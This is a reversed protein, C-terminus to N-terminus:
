ASIRTSIRKAVRGLLPAAIALLVTVRVLHHTAIYAVDGGLTLAVLTMETLGGPAYALLMQETTQGLLGHLVLAFGLATALMLLTAGLSLAFAKFVKIAPMGVFRCGVITGMIIQACIVLTAPPSSQTLGLMHAGASLLMPGLFAPAPFKARYAAFAGILGCLTLIAFDLPGAQGHSSVSVGSVEYGLVVRFWFAVLAIVLVIRAAHALIIARDDGGHQRGIEMMEVVGGPMAAFLATVPDMRGVRVYYLSVVMASVGICALLGLLSLSWQGFQTFTDATFGSGLMVGIVSTVAPRVKEPSRLSVNSMAAVTTATMAGLMWPLPLGALKFAASGALAIGLTFGFSLPTNLVSNKLSSM